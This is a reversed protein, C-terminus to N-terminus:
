LKTAGWKRVVPTKSTDSTNLNIDIRVDDVNTLIDKSIVGTKKTTSNVPLNITNQTATETVISAVNPIRQTANDAGGISRSILDIYTGVIPFTVNDYATVYTAGNNDVELRFSTGSAFFTPTTFTATDGTFTATDLLTGSEDRLVVRTGTSTSLKDVKTVILDEKATVKIGYSSTPSLTGDVVQAATTTDEIGDPTNGAILDIDISTDTPIDADLAMCFANTEDDVALTRITTGNGEHVISSSTNYIEDLDAFTVDMITYWRIDSDLIAYTTESWVYGNEYYGGRSGAVYSPFSVDYRLNLRSGNGKCALSYYGPELLVDSFTIDHIFSSSTSTPLTGSQVTSIYTGDSEIKFLAWERPEYGDYSMDFKCKIIRLYSDSLVVRFKSGAWDDNADVWQSSSTVTSVTDTTSTIIPFYSDVSLGYNDDTSNYLSDTEGTNVTGQLGSATTYSEAATSGGNEWGTAQQGKMALEANTKAAPEMVALMTDNLDLADLVNGDSWDTGGIEDIRIAM